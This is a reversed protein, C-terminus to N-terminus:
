APPLCRLRVEFLVAGDESRCLISSVLLRWLRNEEAPSANALADAASLPAADRGAAPSALAHLQGVLAEEQERLIRLREEYLEATYVGTELLECLRARRGALRKQAGLLLEERRLADEQEGRAPLPIRRLLPLLAERLADAAATFDCSPCCGKKECLLYGGPKNARPRLQMLGGCRACRILGAFPNVLARAGGGSRGRGRLRKQVLDFLSQEVIAPHKGPTVIWREPANEVKRCRGGARLFRRRNWVVAGTYVPNRLISAVAGRTFAESRRPRAGCANLFGAIASTGEGQAYLLFMQRVFAAEEEIPRLTPLKGERSKEYGFPANALYGGEAATREVGRRMRKKILKLEKRAFFTQLETYDEDTEDLLDYTRQPTIIKVGAEKFTELIVGQQSMTGRGLRDIDMCLVAECAGDRVDRLLRLMEPRAYLDEGSVVEEYVGCIELRLARATEELAERHRRLTDGTSDSLDEARSKRLYLLTKM